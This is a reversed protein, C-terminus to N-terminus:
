EPPEKLLRDQVARLQEEAKQAHRELRNAHDTDNRQRALTALERALIAQERLARVLSWAGQEIWEELEGLLAEGEFAHGVHCRFEALRREGTQWMVGGCHPCSLVSVGGAREGREQSAMDERVTAELKFMTDSMTPDGGEVSQRSIKALLKGLEVAPLVQDVRMVAIAASPLAPVVADQPDQVVALGGARQIALLGAVGDGPGGSLLVGVVCPGYAQAASRFLPDIAPRFRNIKPGFWLKVGDRGVLLHYNPPAVYIRGNHLPEEPRAHAAPLAGARSLIEPVLGPSDPTTHIVLFLAASLGAPLEPVIKKLAELAGASAGIVIIDRRAM